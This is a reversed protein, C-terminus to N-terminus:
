NLKIRQEVPAAEIRFVADKWKPPGFRPVANNSLGAPEKPLGIFNRALKGNADEDHFVSLAYEGPPLDLKLTVTDGQRHGAVPVTASTRYRDSLWDDSKDYVWVVINGQESEVNGVIVTLNGEDARAAAGLLLTLAAFRALPRARAPRTATIGM